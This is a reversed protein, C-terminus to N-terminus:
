KLRISALTDTAGPSPVYGTFKPKFVLFTPASSYPIVPAIDMIEANLKEYFAARKDPDIITLGKKMDAIIQPTRSYRDSRLLLANMMDSVDPSTNVYGILFLPAKGTQLGTIYGPVWPVAKSVVNIGVAELDSKFATFIAKPDPMYNRSVGTPYWFEITPHPVGAEQLLKRALDPNYAYPQINKNYGAVGKPTVQTALTAEKPFLAKLVAKKNLAHAIAKRVKVNDLPKHDPSIGVYGLTLGHRVVVYYGQKRLAEVDQPAVNYYGDIQGAELAQRRAPGQAITRFILREIAPKEGWYDQYRDLILRRGKQWLKFKFPGTGVPHENAFTGVWKFSSGSVEIEDGYKKIATPSVIGFQPATLFNYFASPAIPRSLHVVATYEDVADCSSYLSTKPATPVDQTAFGGMFNQWVTSLSILQQADHFHYMREFNFCVAKANFPTGDHFTVDKRLQFTYDTGDDSAKWSVALSPALELSGPKTTILTEYIHKLIYSTASDYSMAPDLMEAPNSMAFVFTSIDKDGNGSNAHVPALPLLAMVAALAVLCTNVRMKRQNVLSM